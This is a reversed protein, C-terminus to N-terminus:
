AHGIADIFESVVQAAKGPVAQLLFHPADVEVVKLGPQVRKILEAAAAPVVADEHARLYLIPAEVAALESTVDVSLVSRLRAQFTEPTVKTVAELFMERLARTSFRGLLTRSITRAFFAGIPLAGILFSLSRLRPRPNRAFTCCLVLGMLGRPRSAAISIAIPGSFSEGLMVFPGDEPLASTVISELDSYSLPEFRPYTVVKVLFKDGISAVFPQFLDGTGDMGPLLVLTVKM